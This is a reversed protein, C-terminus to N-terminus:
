KFVYRGYRKGDKTKEPITEIEFGKERLAKITASLRTNGMRSFAEMSTISGNKMMYDIVKRQYGDRGLGNYMKEFNKMQERGEENDEEEATGCMLDCLEENTLNYFTAGMM